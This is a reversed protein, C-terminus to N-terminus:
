LLLSQKGQLSDASGKDPNDGGVMGLTTVQLMTRGVKMGTNLSTNLGTNLGSTLGSTLRAAGKAVLIDRLMILYRMIVKKVCNYVIRHQDEQGVHSSTFGYMDQLTAIIIGIPNEPEEPADEQESSKDVPSSEGGSGPTMAPVNTVAVSAVRMLSALANTNTTKEQLHDSFTRLFYERLDGHFFVQNTLCNIANRSVSKIAKIANFFYGNIEEAATLGASVAPTTAPGHTSNERSPPKSSKAPTAQSGTQLVTDGGDAFEKIFSAVSAPIHEKNIRTCDNVISMLFCLLEDSEEQSTETHGAAASPVGSEGLNVVGLTSVSVMKNGLNQMLATVRNGANADAAEIKHTTEELLNEYEIALSLYARAIAKAIKLNIEYIRKISMISLTDGMGATNIKKMGIQVNLQIQISEPIHSIYLENGTANDKLTTIDWPLRSPAVGAEEKRCMFVKLAKSNWMQINENMIEAFKRILVDFDLCMSLHPRASFKDEFSFLNAYLYQEFLNDQSLVFSILEHKKQADDGKKATKSQGGPNAAATSGTNLRVTGLTLAATAVSSLHMMQSSLSRDPNQIMSNHSPIAGEEDDDLLIGALYGVIVLYQEYVLKTALHQVYARSFKRRYGQFLLNRLDQSLKTMIDKVRNVLSATSVEKKARRQASKEEDEDSDDSDTDDGTKTPDGYRLTARARKTLVAIADIDMEKDFNPLVAKNVIKSVSFKSFEQTYWLYTKLIAKRVMLVRAHLKSCFYTVSMHNTKDAFIVTRETAKDAKTSSAGSNIISELVSTSNTRLSMDELDHSTALYEGQLDAAIADVEELPVQVGAIRKLAARFTAVGVRQQLIAYVDCAPCPGILLDLAAPREVEKGKQAATTVIRTVTLTCLLADTTLLSSEDVLIQEYPVVICILNKDAGANTAKVKERCESLMKARDSPTQSNPLSLHLGDHRLRVFLVDQEMADATQESAIIRSPWAFDLAGVPKTQMLLHVRIPDDLGMEKSTADRPFPLDQYFLQARMTGLGNPLRKAAQRNIKMHKSLQVPYKRAGTGKPLRDVSLGTEVTHACVIPVYVEGLCEDALAIKKDWLEVLLFKARRMVDGYQRTSLVVEEEWAPNLTKSVVNSVYVVDAKNMSSIINANGLTLVNVAANSTGVIVNSTGQISAAGLSLIGSAADKAVNAVVAAGGTQPTQNTSRRDPNPRNSPTKASESGPAGPKGPTKQGFTGATGLYLLNNAANGVIAAAGTPSPEDAAYINRKDVKSPKSEKGGVLGATGLYALDRAVNGIVSTGEAGKNGVMGATGIYVLNNALDKAAAVAGSGGERLPIVQGNEDAFYVVYYSDATEERNLLDMNFLHGPDKYFINTISNVKLRLEFDQLVNRLVMQCDGMQEGISPLVSSLPIDMRTSVAGTDTQANEDSSFTLHLCERANPDRRSSMVSPPLMFTHSDTFTVTGPSGEPASGRRFAESKYTFRQRGDTTEIHVNAITDRLHVSTAAHVRMEVTYLNNLHYTNRAVIGDVQDFSIIKDFSEMHDDKAVRSERIVLFEAESDVTFSVPIWASPKTENDQLAGYLVKSTHRVVSNVADDRYFQHQVKVLERLMLVYDYYSTWRLMHATDPELGDEPLCYIVMDYYDSKAADQQSPQYALDFGNTGLTFRDFISSVAPISQEYIENRAQLEEERLLARSLQGRIISVNNKEILTSPLTILKAYRPKGSPYRTTQQHAKPKGTKDDIADMEVNQLYAAESIIDVLDISTMVDRGEIVNKVTVKLFTNDDNDLNSIDYRLEYPLAEETRRALEELSDDNASVVAFLKTELVDLRVRLSGCSQRTTPSIIELEEEKNFITMNELFESVLLHASGRHVMEAPAQSTQFPNVVTFTKKSYIVFTLTLEPDVEMVKKITKHNWTPAGTNTRDIFRRDLFVDVYAQTVSGIGQFTASMTKITLEYPLPKSPPDPDIVMRRTFRRRRVYMKFCLCISYSVAALCKGIILM